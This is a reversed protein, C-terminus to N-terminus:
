GEKRQDKSKKKPIVEKFLDSSDFFNSLYIVIKLVLLGITTGLVNIYPSQISVYVSVGILIYRIFYRITTYSQAKGPPMQVAKQLTLYLLRFNLLSLTLGFVIGLIMPIPEPTFLSLCVVIIFGITVRKLIQQISTRDNKM